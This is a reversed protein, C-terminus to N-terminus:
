SGVDYRLLSVFHPLDQTWSRITVQRSIRLFGVCIDAYVKYKKSVLIMPRCEAALSISRDENLNKQHVGYFKWKQLLSAETWGLDNLKRSGIVGDYYGQVTESIKCTKTSRVGGGIGGQNQNTGSAGSRMTLLSRLSNPRSIIKSTNWGIHDRYRFTVSLCASPRVSLRSVRAHMARYFFVSIRCLLLDRHNSYILWDSIKLTALIAIAM